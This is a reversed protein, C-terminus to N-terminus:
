NDLSIAAIASPGDNVLEIVYRVGYSPLGLRDAHIGANDAWGAKLTAFTEGDATRVGFRQQRSDCVGLNVIYTFVVTKTVVASGGHEAQAAYALPAFDAGTKGAVPNRAGKPPEKTNM